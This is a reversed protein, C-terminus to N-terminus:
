RLAFRGTVQFRGCGQAQPSGGALTPFSELGMTVAECLTSQQTSEKWPM